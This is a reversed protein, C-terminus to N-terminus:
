EKKVGVTQSYEGAVALSLGDFLDSLYGCVVQPFVEQPKVLRSVIGTPYM